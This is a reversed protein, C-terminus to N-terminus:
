LNKYNISNSKLYESLAKLQAYTGNVEFSATFTEEKVEEVVTPAQLPQIPEHKFGVTITQQPEKRKAADIQAEFIGLKLSFENLPLNEVDSLTIMMSEDSVYNFTKTLDHYVFSLKLLKSKRENTELMKIRDQELKEAAKRDSIEKISKAANLTKKYEVLIEAKFNQTDILALEDVIKSVFATIRDKYSKMSDSLKIEIGLQSFSLFDINEALCLEDFFSKVEKLTNSKIKDEVETIKDKLLDGASKYKDAVESKYVLDLETYPAVVAEKIAKRQAEFESFEKNLEARLKKLAGVTEETAVQKDLNLDSIRKTVNAGVTYLDHKIVPASVLKIQEM